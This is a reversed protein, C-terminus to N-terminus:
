NYSHNLLNEVHQILVCHVMGREWDVLTVEVKDHDQRFVLGNEPFASGCLHAALCKPCAHYIPFRKQLDLKTEQLVKDAPISDMSNLCILVSESMLPPSSHSDFVLELDSISTLVTLWFNM